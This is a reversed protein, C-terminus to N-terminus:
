FLGLAFYLGAVFANCHSEVLVGDGSTDLDDHSPYGVATSRSAERLRLAAAVHCAAHAFVYRSMPFAFRTDLSIRM